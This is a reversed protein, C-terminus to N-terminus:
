ARIDVFATQRLDRLLRRAQLDMKQETLMRQVDQRSPLNSPPDKRECVMLIQLGGETPLPKSAQGPKLDLVVKRLEPAMEGIRMMGVDGSAASGLEKATKALDECGKVTESITQALERQGAIHESRASAPIPVVLQHLSVQIDNDSGAGAAARRDRVAVIYYGEASRIPTSVAGIPMGALVTEVEQPLQGVQVWGMDGGQRASSDQSFQQALRAFSEGARMEELLRNANNLVQAEDQPSDVPLFIQSVLNSPKSSSEKIKALTEDIEDENVVAFRGGRRRVVKAWAITAEVQKELSDISLGEAKLREPLTGPPVDNQKEIRSLADDIEKPEVRLNLRKAEQIQLREDVMSRLVQATLRDRQDKASPLNGGTLLKIRQDLDYGSIMEDNVVAVIRMAQQADALHVPLLFFAALLAAALRSLPRREYWASPDLKMVSRSGNQAM